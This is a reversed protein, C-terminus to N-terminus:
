SRRVVRERTYPLAWSCSDSVAAIMDRRKRRLADASVALWDLRRSPGRAVPDHGIPLAAGSNRRAADILTISPM